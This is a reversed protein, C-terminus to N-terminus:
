DLSDGGEGSFPVKKKKSREGLVVMKGEGGLTPSITARVVKGTTLKIKPM